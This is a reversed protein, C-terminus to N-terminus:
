RHSSEQSQTDTSTETAALSAAVEGPIVTPRDGARWRRDIEAAILAGARILDDVRSGHQPHDDDWPWDSWDTDPHLYWGAMDLLEGEHLQDDEDAVHDRALHHAREAAILQVGPFRDAAPARDVVLRDCLWAIVLDAEEDATRCDTGGLADTLETHFAPDAFAAATDAPVRLMLPQQQDLTMHM